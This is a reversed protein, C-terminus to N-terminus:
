GNVRDLISKESAMSQKEGTPFLDQDMIVEDMDGEVVEFPANQRRSFHHICKATLRKGTGREGFLLINRRDEAISMIEHFQTFDTTVYAEEGLTQHYHQRLKAPDSPKRSAFFRR